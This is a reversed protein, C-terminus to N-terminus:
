PEGLLARVKAGLENPRFPKQLSNSAPHVVGSVRVVDRLGSLYIVKLNASTTKLRAALELGSMGPLAVATLLLLVDAPHKELLRLAEVSDSARLVRYGLVQLVGAAM